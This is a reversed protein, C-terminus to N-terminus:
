LNPASLHYDTMKQWTAGLGLLKADSFPKGILQIGVPLTDGDNSQVFGGHVSLAPLGLYNFARNLITLESRFYPGSTAGPELEKILPTKVRCVPTLIFDIDSMVKTMFHELHIARESLAQMYITGPLALGEQFRELVEPHLGDLQHLRPVRSGAEVRTIVAGLANIRAWDFPPLETVTAGHQIFLQIASKIVADIEPDIGDFFFSSPIGIRTNKLNNFAGSYVARFGEILPTAIQANLQQADILAEMMRACDAATRAIPGLHDNSHSLPMAGVTSVMGWTPKIGTLGCLAAPIRISGGTDSGIAAFVARAAVTAASGSSSGGPVRNLSWPNHCAGFETNLGSPDFAFETMHLRAVDVHGHANLLNLVNANGTFAYPKNTRPKIGCSVNINERYLLDKHALPIGHLLGKQGSKTRDTDRARAQAMAQDANIEICANLTPQLSQIRQVSLKTLEVSSIRKKDLAAHIQCLSAHLPDSPLASVDHSPGYHFHGSSEFGASQHRLLAPKFDEPTGDMPLNPAHPKIISQWLAYSKSMQALREDRITEGDWMDCTERLLENWRKNM